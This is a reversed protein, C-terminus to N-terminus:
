KLIIWIALSIIVIGLSILCFTITTKKKRNYNKEKIEDVYDSYTKWNGDKISNHKM